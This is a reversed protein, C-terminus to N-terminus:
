RRRRSPTAGSLARDELSGHIRRLLRALLTYTVPKGATEANQQSSALAGAVAYAVANLAFGLAFWPVM